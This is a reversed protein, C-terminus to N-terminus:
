CSNMVILLLSFASLPGVCLFDSTANHFQTLKGGEEDREVSVTNTMLFCFCVLTAGVGGLFLKPNLIVSVSVIDLQWYNHSYFCCQQEIDHNHGQWPQNSHCGCATVIAQQWDADNSPTSSILSHQTPMNGGRDSACILNLNFLFFMYFPSPAQLVHLDSRHSGQRPHLSLCAALSHALSTFAVRCCLAWLLSVEILPVLFSLSINQIFDTVAANWHRLSDSRTEYKQIGGM